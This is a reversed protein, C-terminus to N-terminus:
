ETQKYVGERHSATTHTQSLEVGVASFAFIDKEHPKSVDSCAKYRKSRNKIFILARDRRQEEKECFTVSPEGARGLVGECRNATAALKKRTRFSLEWM